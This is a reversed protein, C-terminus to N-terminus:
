RLSVSCTLSFGSAPCRTGAPLAPLASRESSRRVAVVRSRREGGVPPDESVGGTMRASVHASSTPTCVGYAGVRHRGVRGFVSCKAPSRAHRSDRGVGRLGFSSGGVARVFHHVEEQRQQHNRKQDAHDPADPSHAEPPSRGLPMCTTHCM